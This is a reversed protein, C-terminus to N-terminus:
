FIYIKLSKSHYWAIMGFNTPTHFLYLSFLIAFDCEIFCLCVCQDIRDFSFQRSYKKIKHIDLTLRMVNWVTLLNSDWSEFVFYSPFNESNILSSTSSTLMWSERWPTTVGILQYFNMYNRSGVHYKLQKLNFHYHSLFINLRYSSQSSCYPVYVYPTQSM